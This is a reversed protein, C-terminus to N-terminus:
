QINNLIEALEEIKLHIPNSKTSSAQLTKEIIEPFDDRSIGFDMISPLNLSACLERVWTIGDSAVARPNGTLIQAIETYRRLSESDPKREKLARINSEM